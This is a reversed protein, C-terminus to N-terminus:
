LYNLFQDKFGQDLANLETYKDTNDPPLQQQRSDGGQQKPTCGVTAKKTSQLATTVEPPPTQKM